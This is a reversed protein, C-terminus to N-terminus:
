WFHKLYFRILGKYFEIRKKYGLRNVSAGKHHMAKAEPYIYIKFGTNKYIRYCWDVDNFFIPFGEDFPGVADWCRRRIMLASAMPQLVMGANLHEEIGLKWRRFPGIKNIGLFELLLASPTPFRRCSIQIRGDPYYLLPAVAEVNPNEILFDVLKETTNEILKVDNNLLFIFDGKSLMVGHNVAKAYGVNTDNQAWIIDPFTKTIYEAGGDTSANDVIIIEYSVNGITNYISYVCEHLLQKHNYNPIICSVKPDAKSEIINL